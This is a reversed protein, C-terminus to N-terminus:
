PLLSSISRKAWDVFGEPEPNVVNYANNDYFSESISSDGVVEYSQLVVSPTSVM